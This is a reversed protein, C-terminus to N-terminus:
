QSAVQGPEVGVVATVPVGSLSCAGRRWMTISALLPWLPPPEVGVGSARARHWPLAPRLRRPLWHDSRRWHRWFLRVQAKTWLGADEKGRVGAETRIYGGVPHHGMAEGALDSALCAQTHAEEEQAAARQVIASCTHCPVRKSSTRKKREQRMPSQQGGGKENVQM